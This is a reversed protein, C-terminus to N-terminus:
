VATVGAVQYWTDTMWRLRVSSGNTLTITTASLRLGSGPLTGNDKLIFNHAGRNIILVEQGEIGDTLTPTATMTVNGSTLNVDIVPSPAMDLQSAPDPDSKVQSDLQDTGSVRLSNAGVGAFNKIGTGMTQTGLSVAGRHTGDADPLTAGNVGAALAQLVAVMQAAWNTDAASSPLVYVVSDITLTLSM